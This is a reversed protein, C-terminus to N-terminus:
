NRHNDVPGSSQRIILKTPIEYQHTELAEGELIRILLSTALEAMERIPQRVTTLSPWVQRSLPIDDFGVVSLEEPVPIGMQHAVVLAGSAMEDNNAFIATPRPRVALLTSACSRGSEFHDDGQTLLVPDVDIGEEALAAKFGNLRDRGATQDAPGKIFGIRRHGQSLLYRTMDYAGQWDTTAVYPLCSKRDKPALRVFPVGSSQLEKLLSASNDAPPTFILGDVSRQSALGLVQRCDGPQSADCPHLLLSYGVKRGTELASLLVQNIYHWSANHYILGITYSRGTALRQASVNVVYGLEEIAQMVRARTEDRVFAENNIVRSVTKISVGAHRAVDRITVTM